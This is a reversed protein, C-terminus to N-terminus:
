AEEIKFDRLFIWGKKGSEVGCFTFAIYNTSNATFTFSVTQTGTQKQFNVAPSFNFTESNPNGSSPRRTSQYSLGFQYTSFTFSSPLELEFSATYQTGNTLGFKSLNVCFGEYGSDAILYGVIEKKLVSDDIYYCSYLTDFNFKPSDSTLGFPDDYDGSPLSPVNVTVSSYGDAGDNSANYTNNETINKTILTPESGGGGSGLALSGARFGFSVSM